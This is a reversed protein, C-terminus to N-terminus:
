LFESPDTIRMMERGLITSPEHIYVSAGELMESDEGSQEELPSLLYWYRKKSKTKKEHNKTGSSFTREKESEMKSDFIEM